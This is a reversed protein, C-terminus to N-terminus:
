CNFFLFVFFKVVNYIFITELGAVPINIRPAGAVIGAQTGGSIFEVKPAKKKEQEKRDSERRM